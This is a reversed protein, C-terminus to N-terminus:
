LAKLDDPTNFNALVKEDYPVLTKVKCKKLLKQLSFQGKQLAQQIKPSFTPKYICFTGEYFEQGAKQYCIADVQENEHTLLDEISQRDVYAMDCAIVLWNATPGQSFASAIGGIPGISPYQDLIKPYCDPVTGAQQQNCSLYTSLNISSLLEYLYQYQPKGHFDILYKERGMRKSEGGILILAKMM